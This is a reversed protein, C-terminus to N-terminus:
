KVVEFDFSYWKEFENYEIHKFEKNELDVFFYFGDKIALLLYSENTKKSILKIPNM